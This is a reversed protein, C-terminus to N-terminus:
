RLLASATWLLPAQGHLDGVVRPRALYYGASDGTPTGTCVERVNGGGDVYQALGLWAKRAARAYAAQELWRQKVGCVMAFAFMGSASTEPWAGPDDLLQRWLGDGGQCDLLASMMRTYGALIRARRPHDPALARLLEAMGAAMWGNGRGWFFRADPAHFFLGNSQQLRDLYASMALATRDLCRPDGAARYAQVQLITIMYMDDIWYRAEATIGDPGASEWQREAIDMGLDLYKWEGTQLHIELPVAGAVRYDVHAEPSIRQSVEAILPIDFKRILRDRLGTDGSLAAFTLAGYGACVDPYYLFGDHWEFPREAYNGAIREGVERPSFGAPWRRLETRGSLIRPKSKRRAPM